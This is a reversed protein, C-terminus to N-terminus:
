TYKGGPAPLLLACRDRHRDFRVGAIVTQPGDSGLRWPHDVSYGGLTPHAAEFIMGLLRTRMQLELEVCRIM